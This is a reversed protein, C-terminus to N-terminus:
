LNFQHCVDELTAVERKLKALKDSIGVGTIILNHKKVFPMLQRPEKFTLSVENDDFQLRIGDALEFWCHWDTRALKIIEQIPDVDIPGTYELFPSSEGSLLIEWDTKSLIKDELIMQAILEERGTRLSFAQAQLEASQEDLEKIQNTLQEIHEKFNM